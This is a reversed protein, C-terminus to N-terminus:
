RCRMMPRQISSRASWRIKPKCCPTSETVDVTETMQGIGMNFDIRATQNLELRVAAHTATQFGKAEAKIEYSGIPIRPLLM